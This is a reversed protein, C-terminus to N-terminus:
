LPTQWSSLCINDGPIARISDPDIKRSLTQLSDLILGVHSHDARRVVEWADSHDNIHHGSALPEFGIRIGRAKPREGPEALDDAARDIGGLAYASLNSCILVLNADMSNM